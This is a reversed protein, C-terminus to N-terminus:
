ETDRALLAACVSDETQSLIHLRESMKKSLFTRGLASVASWGVMHKPPLIEVRKVRCPLSTWLDLGVRVDEASASRMLRAVTAHTVRRFDLVVCNVDHTSRWLARMASAAAALECALRDPDFQTPDYVLTQTALDSRLGPRQPADNAGAHAIVRAYQRSASSAEEETKHAFTARWREAHESRVGLTAQDLQPQDGPSRDSRERKRYDRLSQIVAHM